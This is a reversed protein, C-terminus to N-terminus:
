PFYPNWGLPIRVEKTTTPAISKVQGGGDNTDFFPIWHAELHVEKEAVLMNFVVM